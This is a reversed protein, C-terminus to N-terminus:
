RFIAELFAVEEDDSLDDLVPVEAPEWPKARALQEEVPLELHEGASASRNIPHTSM